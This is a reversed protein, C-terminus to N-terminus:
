ALMEAALRDMVGHLREHTGPGMKEVEVREFAEALEAQERDALLREAMVFLVLNEKSIHARLLSSFAQAAPLWRGSAGQKGAAADEAAAAMERVHARGQDHEILMVGIPGGHRPIGKAEMAPFLLDEEKGHHCRDAFLRFFEVLEAFTKPAVSMGREIRRNVEDTVDLMKLIADHEHRLVGTATAM